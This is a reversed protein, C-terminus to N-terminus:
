DGGAADIEAFLGEYFKLAERAVDLVLPNPQGHLLPPHFTVGRNVVPKTRVASPTVSVSGTSGPGLVFKSGGVITTGGTYTGPGLTTYGLQVRSSPDIGHEDAHRAQQVFQLLSDNGRLAAHKPLLQGWYAKDKYYAGCRNWARQHYILFDEWADQLDALCSASEMERLSERAREFAIRPPSSM